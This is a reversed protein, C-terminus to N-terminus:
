APRSRKPRGRLPFICFTEKQARSSGVLPPLVHTADGPKAGSDILIRRRLGALGLVREGQPLPCPSPYTTPPEARVGRFSSHRFRGALVSPPSSALGFSSVASLYRQGSNRKMM